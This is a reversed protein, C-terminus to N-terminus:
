GTLAACQETIDPAIHSSGRKCKSPGKRLWMEGTLRQPRLSEETTVSAGPIRRGWQLHFTALQGGSVRLAM